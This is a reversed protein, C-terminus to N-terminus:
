FGRSEQEQLVKKGPAILVEAMQQGNVGPRVTTKTIKLIDAKIEYDFHSCCLFSKGGCTVM